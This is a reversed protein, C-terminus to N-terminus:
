TLNQFWKDFNSGLNTYCKRLFNRNRLSIVNYVESGESFERNLLQLLLKNVNLLFDRSM